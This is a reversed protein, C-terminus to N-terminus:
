RLPFNPTPNEYHECLADINETAERKQSMFSHQSVNAPRDVSYRVIMTDRHTIEDMQCIAERYIKIAEETIVAADQGNLVVREKKVEGPSGPFLYINTDYKGDRRVVNLSLTNEKYQLIRHIARDDFIAIDGVGADHIASQTLQVTGACVRTKSKKDLITLTACELNPDSNKDCEKASTNKSFVDYVVHTYGNKIIYSMFGNPHDHAAADMLQSPNEEMRTYWFNTRVYIKTGNLESLIPHSLDLVEEPFRTRFFGSENIEWTVDAKNDILFDHANQLTKRNFASVVMSQMYLIYLLFRLPNSKSEHARLFLSEFLFEINKKIMDFM